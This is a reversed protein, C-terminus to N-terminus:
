RSGLLNKEFEELIKLHVDTRLPAASFYKNQSFPTKGRREITFATVPPNTKARDIDLTLGTVKFIKSEVQESLEASLRESLQALGSWVTDLEGASEFVLNSVFAWRQILDNPYHIRHNTALWSLNERLIKQGQETSSRVDLRIGDNYITFNDISQGNYFGDAFVIGREQNFDEYLVPFKQFRFREVLTTVLDPPFVEGRPNLEAVDFLAIVRALLVASLRV